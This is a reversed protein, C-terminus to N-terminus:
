NPFSIFFETGKNLESKIKIQANHLRFVKESISLGIGYGPYGFTNKGRFFPQFINQLDDASIGIGSDKISIVTTNDQLYLRCVVAKNDSFKIANKVVNGFAICLLYNNGLIKHKEAKGPVDYIVDVKSGQMKITLEDKVQWLLEDLRIEQFETVDINTQALEFLNNIVDNLKGSEQLISELTAKYEERSREASLTLEV